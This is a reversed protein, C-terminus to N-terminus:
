NCNCRCSTVDILCKHALHTAGVGERERERERVQLSTLPEFTGWEVTLIMNEYLM